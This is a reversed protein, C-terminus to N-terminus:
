LFLVQRLYQFQLDDSPNEQYREALSGNVFETCLPGGDISFEINELLREGLTKAKPSKVTTISPGDFISSKSLDPKEIFMSPFLNNISSSTALMNQKEEKSQHKVKAETKDISTITESPIETKSDSNSDQDDEPHNHNSQNSHDIRKQQDKDDEQDSSSQDENGDIEKIEM